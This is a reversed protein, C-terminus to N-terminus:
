GLGPFLAFRGAAVQDVCRRYEDFCEMGQRILGLVPVPGPKVPILTIPSAAPILQSGNGVALTTLIGSMAGHINPRGLLIM